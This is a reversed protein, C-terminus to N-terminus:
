WNKNDYIKLTKKNYEKIIDIISAVDTQSYDKKIEKSGELRCLPDFVFDILELEVEYDPTFVIPLQLKLQLQHNM